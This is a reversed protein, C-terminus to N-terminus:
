QASLLSRGSSAVATEMSWHITQRQILLSRIDISTYQMPQGSYVREMLPKYHDIFHAFFLTKM